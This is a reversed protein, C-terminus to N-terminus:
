KNILEVIPYNDLIPLYICISSENDVKILYTHQLPNEEDDWDKMINEFTDNSEMMENKIETTYSM